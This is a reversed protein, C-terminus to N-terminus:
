GDRGVAARKAKDDYHAARGADGKARYLLALEEFVYVDPNGEAARERELRLQIELAEDTRGLARLTWAVMWHAVHTANADTGQSRLASASEFLVLAADYRGLQYLAYGTNHLLSAQWRQAKPDTSDRALALAREGWALQAKPDTDVFAMMHMADIALADLKAATALEIADLYLGRARELDEATLQDPTHAASAYTRGLELGAYVRAEPGAGQLPGALQSLMERAAAFDQRLSYTRAIQTKLILATDGQAVELAERFRQESLQPDDFDWLTDVNLAVGGASMCCVLTIAMAGRTAQPWDASSPSGRMSTGARGRVIESRSM